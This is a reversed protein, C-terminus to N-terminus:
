AFLLLFLRKNYFSNKIRKRKNREHKEKKINEKLIFNMCMRSCGSSKKKLRFFSLFFFKVFITAYIFAFFCLFQFVFVCKCKVYVISAFIYLYVVVFCKWVSASQRIWEKTTHTSTSLFDINVNHDKTIRTNRNIANTKNCIIRWDPNCHLKEGGNINHVNIKYM